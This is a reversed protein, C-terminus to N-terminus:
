IRKLQQILRNFLAQELDVIVNDREQESALLNDDDLVVDKQQSITRPPALPAGSADAVSFDIRRELRDVTKGTGAGTVLRRDPLTVLRVTLRVAGERPTVAVEAGAAELRQSLRQQQAKSFDRTLLQIQKLEPPLTVSGALRFGCATLLLVLALAILRQPLM